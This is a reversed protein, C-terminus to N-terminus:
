AKRDGKRGKAMAQLEEVTTKMDPDLSDRVSTSGEWPYTDAWRLFEDFKCRGNPGTGTCHIAMKAPDRMGDIRYAYWLWITQYPGAEVSAIAIGIFPILCSLLAFLRM